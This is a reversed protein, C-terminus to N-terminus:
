IRQDSSVKEFLYMKLSYHYGGSFSGYMWIFIVYRSFGQM